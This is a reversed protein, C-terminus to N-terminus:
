KATAAAPSGGPKEAAPDPGTSLLAAVTASALATGATTLVSVLITGVPAALSRLSRVNRVRDWSYGAARTLWREWLLGLGGLLMVLQGARILVAIALDRGTAPDLVSSEARGGAPLDLIPLVEVGLLAVGFAAAKAIPGDGRLLPYLFGFLLAYGFWRGLHAAIVLLDAVTRYPMREAADVPALIAFLEYGAFLLGVPLAYGFARVANAWPARGGGTSFADGSPRRAADDLERQAQDYKELTDDAAGLRGRARRFLEFASAEALRRRIEAGVLERHREVGVTALRAARLRGDVPVAWRWAAVLWVVAVVHLPGFPFPDTAAIVALALATALVTRSGLARGSRGAKRLFLLAVVGFGVAALRAFPGALNPTIGEYFRAFTRLDTFALLVPVSALGGLLVGIRAWLPVQVALVVSVAAALGALVLRATDPLALWSGAAGVIAALGATWVVAAVGRWRGVDYAAVGTPFLLLLLAAPAMWGDDPTGLRAMMTVAGAALVGGGILLAATGDRPPDVTEAYLRRAAFVAGAVALPVAIGLVVGPEILDSTAPRLLPPFPLSRLAAGFWALGALVGSAVAATRVVDAFPDRRGQVRAMLVWGPVLVVVLWATWDFVEGLWGAVLDFPDAPANIAPAGAEDDALHLLVVAPTGTIAAFRAQQLNPAPRVDVLVAPGTRVTLWRTAARAAPSQLGGDGLSVYRHERGTYGFRLKAPGTPSAREVTVPTNVPGGALYRGLSPGDPVFDLLPDGALLRVEYAITMGPHDARGDLAVEMTVERPRQDPGTAWPPDAFVESLVADLDDVPAVRAASAAAGAVFALLVVLVPLASPRSM